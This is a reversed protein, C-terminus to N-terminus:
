WRSYSPKQQELGNMESDACGTSPPFDYEILSDSAQRETCLNGDFRICFRGKSQLRHFRGPMKTLLVDPSHFMCGVIFHRLRRPYAVSLLEARRVMAGLAGKMEDEEESEAPASRGVCGQLSVKRHTAISQCVKGIRIMRRDERQYKAVTNFSQKVALLLM